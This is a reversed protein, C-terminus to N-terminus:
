KFWVIFLFSNAFFNSYWTVADDSFNFYVSVDPREVAYHSGRYSTAYVRSGNAESRLQWVIEGEQGYPAPESWGGGDSRTILFSQHPQFKLADTGATFFQFYLKNNLHFFHPERVDRGLALTHEHAWTAGGDASAVIHILADPSAFHFPASRWGMFLLNAFSYIGVCNNSPHLTLNSPLGPSPVV